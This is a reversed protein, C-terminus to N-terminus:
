PREQPADLFRMYPGDFRLHVTDLSGNRHKRLIAEARGAHEDVDREYYEPRFLMLVIDADQELSGSGRLDSLLPRKSDLSNGRSELARSLQALAVVPVQLEGALVKLGRSIETLQEQESRGGGLTSRMLQVYDVVVLGLPNKAHIRRAKARLDSVSLDTTDDVWMPQNSARQGAAMIKPWEAERVRGKRLRTADVRAEAAILRQTVEGESMELTWLGVGVGTSAAHDAINLAFASKGMSPRAAVLVLQGPQFGGTLEDLAAFGSPVGTLEVGELSLRHLRDIEAAMVDGARRAQKAASDQGLTLLGAEAAALIDGPEREGADLDGLARRAVDAVGRGLAAKRVTRAYQRVRGAAPPAPLADLVALADRDGSLQDRLLGPDYGDGSDALAVMASYVARTAPTRFHEPRLAEELRLVPLARDSVLLAGLVYREAQEANM